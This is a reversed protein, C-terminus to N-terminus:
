FMEGGCDDQQVILRADGIEIRRRLVQECDAVAVQETMRQLMREAVSLLQEACHLRCKGAIGAVDFVVHHQARVREAVLQVQTARHCRQMQFSESQQQLEVGDVSRELHRAFFLHQVLCLGIAHQQAVQRVLDLVRQAAYATSRLQQLVFQFFRSQAFVGLDDNLFCIAQTRQHFFQERRLVRGMETREIDMLYQFSHAAHHQCLQGFTQEDLAIVVQAQRFQCPSLSCSIWTTSLM